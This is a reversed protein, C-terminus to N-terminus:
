EGIVFEDGIDLGIYDEPTVEVWIEVYCKGNYENKNTVQYPVPKGCNCIMEMIIFSHIILVIGIIVCAIKGILDFREKDM